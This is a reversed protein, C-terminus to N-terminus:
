EKTVPIWLEYYRNEKRQERKTWLHFVEVITDSKLKYGSAPLWSDFVLEFLKPIERGAYGGRESTFCAYTGAPIIQKELSADKVDDKRRAITYRGDQWLGFWIGDFSTSDHHNFQGECIREPINDGRDTWMIQRLEERTYDSSDYAKSLGYVETDELEIIRFDMEQAGKVNIHFSVPPYVKLSGGNKRYHSPTFGHQNAFARSFSAVSDYGYKVALDVIPTDSSNLEDCVLSLRRRRIYQTLTMGTMYSFFRIFSDTTVCAIEAATNVCIEECINKEIYDMASNLQNLMNM